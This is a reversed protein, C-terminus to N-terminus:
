APQYTFVAPAVLYGPYQVTASLLVLDVLRPRGGGLYVPLICTVETDTAVVATASIGVADQDFGVDTYKVKVATTFGLGVGTLTVSTPVDEVGVAPTVADVVRATVVLPVPESYISDMGAVVVGYAGAATGASAYGATALPYDFIIETDIISTLRPQHIQLGWSGDPNVFAVPAYADVDFWSGTIVFTATGGANVHDPVVSDIHAQTAPDFFWIWQGGNSAVGGRSVLTVDFYDHDYDVSVAHAPTVCTVEESSVLVVETCAIGDIAVQVPDRFGTGTITILTGGVLSVQSPRIHDIDPVPRLQAILQRIGALSIRGGAPKPHDDDVTTVALVTYTVGEEFDAGDWVVADLQGTDPDTTYYANLPPVVDFTDAEALGPYDVGAETGEFVLIAQRLPWFAAQAPTTPQPLPPDIAGADSVPSTFAFRYVYAGGVGWYSGTAYEDDTYVHSNVQWPLPTVGLGGGVPSRAAQGPRLRQDVSM